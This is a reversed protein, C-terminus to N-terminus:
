ARTQMLQKKAQRLAEAKSQGQKLNRYFFEMFLSTSQDSVKWLSAVVSPTGAYMFARTLGIIGEGRRLKGKGTDCGSPVVLGSDGAEKRTPVVCMSPWPRPYQPQRM